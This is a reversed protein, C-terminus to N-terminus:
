RQVVVADITGDIVDIGLDDGDSVDAAFRVTRGDALRRVRSYGRAMTAAPSLAEMRKVLGALDVRALRLRAAAARELRASCAAVAERRIELRRVPASTELRRELASTDRRRRLLSDGVRRSLRGFLDDVALLLERADPTALEAAATPTAARVDAAFDAITVDTEHGVGSVVPVPCAAISRAVAEDNFAWLDEISGGGRTVIIVDVGSRGAAEIAAVIRVPAADGQVPTPSVLVEVGPWRRTLVKCVDRLAAADPSTVVGIRRPFQPLPRKLAEDFLGEAALRAKLVEFARHLDGQGAPEVHDAYLQYQGGAAYVSVEGHVLLADGNAPVHAQLAARSRWMVCKLAADEDKITWYWHGSAARVFNSVEGRVWLDSLLSDGDLLAKVHTTVEGVTHVNV